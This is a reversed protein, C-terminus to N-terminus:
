RIITRFCPAEFVRLLHNESSEQLDTDVSLPEVNSKLIINRNHIINEIRSLLVNMDFPKEIYADVGVNFGEIKHENSSLSTLMIIPIYKFQPQKKMYKCLEIGNMRPMMYDTIVIDPVSEELKLLKKVM